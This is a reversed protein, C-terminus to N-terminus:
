SLRRLPSSDKARESVLDIDTELRRRLHRELRRLLFPKKGVDVRESFGIVGRVEYGVKNKELRYLVMDDPYLEESQLFAGLEGVMKDTREAAALSLWGESPPAYYFNEEKEMAMSARYADYAQRALRPALMFPAGANIPLLVGSIPPAKDEDVLSEVVKLGVHDAVEQMPLSEAALCFLDLAAKESPRTAGSHRVLRVAHTQPDIDLALSVDGECGHIRVLNKDLPGANGECRISKSAAELGPRFHPHVDAFAAHEQTDWQVRLSPAPAERSAATDVQVAPPSAARREAGVPEAEAAAATMGTVRMVISDGQDELVVLSFQSVAEELQSLRAEPVTTRRFRIVIETRGAFRASDVMGAIGSVADADPVWYDLFGDAVGHKRLTQTLNQSFAAVLGEYDVTESNEV